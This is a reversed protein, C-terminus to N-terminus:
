YMPAIVGLVDSASPPESAVIAPLTGAFATDNSLAAGSRTIDADWGPMSALSAEEASRDITGLIAGLGAGTSTVRVDELYSDRTTSADLLLGLREAGSISVNRLSFPSGILELGDGIEISGRVLVTRRVARVGEIDVGDLTVNAADVATIAAFATDRVHANPGRVAAIVDTGFWLGVDGTGEIALADHEAVGAIQVLGFGDCRALTLGSTDIEGTEVFGCYSPWGRVGTWVDEITVGHLELRDARSAFGVGLGHGITTDRLTVYLPSPETGTGRGLVLAISAFGTITSDFVHLEGETVVVGHTAANSATASLWRSDDRTAETVGGRITTGEVRTTGSSAIEVGVGTVTEIVMGRLVAHADGTVRVGTHHGEVNVNWLQGSMGGSAVTVAPGDSPGVVVSDASGRLTVDAPVRLSAEIRCAPLMVTDGAEAADLERQVEVADCVPAAEECASLALTALPGVLLGLAAAPTRM